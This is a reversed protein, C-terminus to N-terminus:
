HLRSLLALLVQHNTLWPVFLALSVVLLIHFNDTTRINDTPNLFLGTQYDLVLQNEQQALLLKKFSVQWKSLPWPDLCTM